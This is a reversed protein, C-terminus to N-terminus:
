VYGVRREESRLVTLREVLTQSVLNYGEALATNEAYASGATALTSAYVETNAALSAMVQIDRTGTVGLDILTQAVNGGEDNFRGRGEILATFAAQTTDQWTSSFREATLNIVAAICEFVQEQEGVSLTM